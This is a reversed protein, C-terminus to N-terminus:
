YVGERRSFVHLFLKMVEWILYPKESFAKRKAKKKLCGVVFDNVLRVKGIGFERELDRGAIVWGVNTFTVRDQVVPGAVALCASTIRGVAGCACLLAVCCVVPGRLVYCPWVACLLAVRVCCPWVCVVPGCLVCRPWVACLLAVRVCCPWVACLLAVCCVVPGRLM